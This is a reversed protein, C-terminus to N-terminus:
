NERAAADRPLEPAVSPTVIRDDVVLDPWRRPKIEVEGNRLALAVRQSDGGVYWQLTAAQTWHGEASRAWLACLAVSTADLDCLLMENRGDGDFDRDIAICDADAFLCDGAAGPAGILARLLAPEPSASGRAPRIRAALAEISTVRVGRREAEGSGGPATQRELLRQVSGALAADAVVRPDSRLTLLARYGHRGSDFRLYRVDLHEADTRGDQWRRLQDGVGIRHPDLLPSNLAGIVAITLLSLAINIRPLAAFWQARPRLVGIAYAFAAITLMTCITVAFVRESTWGYQGIRLGLAYLGIAGYVPLTLVGAEIVRRLWAPYPSPQTGDQWVANLGLASVAIVSMLIFTASRTSWLADLGTFPLSAVFLVAVCAILPLLGIAIAVVVQRAVHIARHQTRGILIGLGAMAGTALYEFPDSRFLERFFTIDILAFLSAWLHLVLWGIGTFLGAVALTLGNQWLHGFLEPYPACWRGHALRCQLYPLALFVALATSVGYPGLVESADLGPAGTASWAAWSAPLALLATLGLAHQWFRRDRLRLVSLTMAAPVALVLTYWCVRGGLLSFPWWGHAEGIQVLYLALGQLLSVLVIFRCEARGLVTDTSM